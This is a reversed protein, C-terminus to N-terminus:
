VLKEIILTNLKRNFLISSLCFLRRHWNLKRFLRLSNSKYSKSSVICILLNLWEIEKILWDTYKRNYNESFFLAISRFNNYFILKKLVANNHSASNQLIRYVGTVENIFKIKSFKSIYLWLPYDGMLWNHNEPKIEKIYKIQIDRRLVATLTPVTNNFLFNDFTEYSGGWIDIFRNKDQSYRKVRTYCMGYDPHSELFDVQKQLKLPDIWYDDGECLAVYKAGYNDCAKNMIESLSGDQKSYQNENEFIPLITDPYKEAYKRLVDATGDTSADDHVIAVFPFNTKQMVFGELTDKIYSEHNYTICRIVVLPKISECKIIIEEIQQQAFQNIKTPCM